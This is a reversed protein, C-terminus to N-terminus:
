NQKINKILSKDGSTDFSIKEIKLSTLIIHKPITEIYSIAVSLFYDDNNLLINKNNMDYHYINQSEEKASIFDNNGEKYLEFDILNIFDDIQRIKLCDSKNSVYNYMLALITIYTKNITEEM